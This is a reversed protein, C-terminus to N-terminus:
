RARGSGGSPGAPTPAGALSVKAGLKSALEEVGAVLQELERSRGALEGIAEDLGSIAQAIHHTGEKQEAGIRNIEQGLRRVVGVAGVFRENVSKQEEVQAVLSRESAGIHEFDKQQAFFRNAAEATVRRANEIVTESDQIIGAIDRANRTSTEALKGVEQAVVAFGRGQEGARAAEISANLALLNTRDAIEAMISNIESVRTFSAIINEFAEQTEGALKSIANTHGRAAEVASRLTALSGVVRGFTSELVETESSMRDLSRFQEQVASQSSDASASLEEMSASVEEVAAAQGDLRTNHERLTYQMVQVSSEMADATQKMALRNEELRRNSERLQELTREVEEREAVISIVSRVLFAAGFLFFIKTLELAYAVTDERYAEQLNFTFRLGTTHAVAATAVVSLASVVSVVVVFGPSQLFAACIIYYIFITFLVPSILIQKSDRPEGLVGVTLVLCLVLVDLILLTRPLWDPVAAVRHWITFLLAYALMTGIGACYAIIQMRSTTELSVLTSIAYLAVLGFRVRNLLRPGRYRISVYTSEQETSMQGM